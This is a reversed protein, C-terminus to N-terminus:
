GGSMPKFEVLIRRLYGVAEHGRSFRIDFDQESAIQCAVEDADSGVKENSKCHGVKGKADIQLTLGIRLDNALKSRSAADGSSEEYGVTIDPSTPVADLERSLEDRRSGNPDVFVALRTSLLSHIRKGAFDRAPKFRAGITGKCLRLASEKDGAYGQVICERVRGKDSIWLLVNAVAADEERTIRPANMLTHMAAEETGEPFQVLSAFLLLFM